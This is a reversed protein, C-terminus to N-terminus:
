IIKNNSFINTYVAIDRSGEYEIEILTHYIIRKAKKSIDLVLFVKPNMSEIKKLQNRSLTDKGLTLIFEIKDKTLIKLTTANNELICVTKKKKNEGYISDTINIFEYENSSTNYAKIVTYLKQTDLLAMTSLGSPRVPTIIPVDRKFLTYKPKNFWFISEKFLSYYYSVDRSYLNKLHVTSLVSFTRVSRQYTHIADEIIRPPNGLMVVGFLALPTKTGAEVDTNYDMITYVIDDREARLTNTFFLQRFMLFPHEEINNAWYRNGKEVPFINFSNINNRSAAQERGHYALFDATENGINGSHSKIWDISIRVESELLRNIIDKLGRIIDVNANPEKFESNSILKTVSEKTYMSDTLIYVEELELEDKVQELEELIKYVALLEAQGITGANYYAYSADIYAFPIVTTNFDVNFVNNIVYGETTIYYNSPTDTTIKTKTKDDYVYGHIGSGYFSVEGMDADLTNFSKYSGDTYLVARSM